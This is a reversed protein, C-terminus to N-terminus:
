RQFIMKRSKIQQIRKYEILKRIQMNRYEIPNTIPEDKEPTKLEDKFYKNYIYSSKMTENPKNIENNEYKKDYKFYNTQRSDVNNPEYYLKGKREYMGMNRLIDDYDIKNANKNTPKEEVIMEM